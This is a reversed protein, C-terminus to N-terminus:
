LRAAQVREHAAVVDPRSEIAAGVDDTAELAPWAAEIAPAEADVSRGILQSLALAARRRDLRASELDAKAREAEIGSRAADQAALDGAQVRRAATQALGAASK